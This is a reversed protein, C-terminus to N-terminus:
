DFIWIILIRCSVLSYLNGEGIGCVLAFRGRQCPKLICPYLYHDYLLWVHGLGGGLMLFVLSYYFKWNKIDEAGYSYYSVVLVLSITRSFWNIRYLILIIRYIYCVCVIIVFIVHYISMSTNWIFRKHQFNTGGLTWDISHALIWCENLFVHFKKVNFQVFHSILHLVPGYHWLLPFLYIFFPSHLDYKLLPSLLIVRSSWPHMQPWICSTDM